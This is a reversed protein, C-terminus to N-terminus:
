WSVSSAGPRSALPRELNRLGLIEVTSTRRGAPSQPQSKYYLQVSRIVRNDNAAGIPATREGPLLRITRSEVHVPGTAYSVVVRTLIIGRENAKVCMARLPGVAPDIDIRSQAASLDITRSGITFWTQAQANDPALLWWLLLVIFSSTRVQIATSM